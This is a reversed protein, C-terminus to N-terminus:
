QAGSASPVAGGRAWGSGEGSYSSWPAVARNEKEEGAHISQRVMPAAGLLESGIARKAGEQEGGLLGAPARESRRAGQPWWGICNVIRYRRV